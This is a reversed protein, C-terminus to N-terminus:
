CVESNGEKWYDPWFASGHRKFADSEFLQLPDTLPQSDADLLLVQLMM